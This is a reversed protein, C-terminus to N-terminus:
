IEFLLPNKTQFPYSDSFLCLLVYKEYMNYMCLWTIHIVFGNWSDRRFCTSLINYKANLTTKPTIMDCTWHELWGQCEFLCHCYNWAFHYHTKTSVQEIIIELNREMIWPWYNREGAFPILTLFNFSHLFEEGVILRYGHKGHNGEM